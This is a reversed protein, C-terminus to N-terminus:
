MSCSSELEDCSSEIEGCAQELAEAMENAREGKEGNQFSEPMNDYYDREEDRCAELESLGERIKALAMSTAKRRQTNM